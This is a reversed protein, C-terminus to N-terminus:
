KLKRGCQPCYVMSDSVENQCSPCYHGAAKRKGGGTARRQSNSRRVLSSLEEQSMIKRALEPKLEKAIEFSEHCTTCVLFLKKSYQFTPVFYVTFKKREQEISFVGRTKCEPCKIIIYGLRDHYGKSGFLFFWM